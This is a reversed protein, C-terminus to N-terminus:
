TISLCHSESLTQRSTFSLSGSFTLTYELTLLESCLLAVLPFVCALSFASFLYVLIKYHNKFIVKFSVTKFTFSLSTLNLCHSNPRLYHVWTCINFLSILLNLGNIYFSIQFNYFLRDILKIFLAFTFVYVLILSLFM